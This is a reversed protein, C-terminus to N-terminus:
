AGPQRGAEEIRTGRRSDILRAADAILAQAEARDRARRSDAAMAAWANQRARRQGGDQWFIAFVRSAVDAVATSRV